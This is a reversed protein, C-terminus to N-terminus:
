SIGWLWANTRHESEIPPFAVLTGIVPMSLRELLNLLVRRLQRHNFCTKYCFAAGREFGCIKQVASNNPFQSERMENQHSCYSNVDGVM